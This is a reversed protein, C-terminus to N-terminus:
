WGSTKPAIKDKRRTIQSPNKPAVYVTEKGDQHTQLLDLKHLKNLDTRATNDAVGLRHRVEAVTFINGPRAFAINLLMRQRANLEAAMGSEYIFIEMDNRTKVMHKIYDVYDIVARGVIRCQYDVFYTLDFRDTETYCYAKAYYPILGALQTPAHDPTLEGIALQSKM